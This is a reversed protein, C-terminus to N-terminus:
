IRDIAMYTTPTSYLFLSVPLFIHWKNKGRAAAVASTGNIGATDSVRRGGVGAGIDGGSVGLGLTAVIATAIAVCPNNDGPYRFVVPTSSKSSTTTIM